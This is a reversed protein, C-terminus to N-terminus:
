FFRQLALLLALAIVGLVTILAIRGPANELV